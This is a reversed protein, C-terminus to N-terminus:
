NLPLIILLFEFSFQSFIRDMMIKLADSPRYIGEIEDFDVLRPFGFRTAYLIFIYSAVTDYGEFKKEEEKVYKIMMQGPYILDILIEYQTTLLQIGM